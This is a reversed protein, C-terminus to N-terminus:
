LIKKLELMNSIYFNPIYKEEPYKKFNINYGITKMGMKRPLEIDNVPNDGIYINNEIPTNNLSKLYSNIDPKPKSDDWGYVKEFYKLLGMDDMIKMQDLAFWNTLAVITYGKAYLYQLTENVGHNLECKRLVIAKLFDEPSLGFETLIPIMEKIVKGYFEKTITKDKIKKENHAFFDNIQKHFRPTFEVGLVFALSSVEKETDQHSILTGDIDFIIRNIGSLM